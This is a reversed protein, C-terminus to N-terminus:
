ATRCGLRPGVRVGHQHDGDDARQGDARDACRCPGAPGRRGRRSGRLRRPRAEPVVVALRVLEAGSTTAAVSEAPSVVPLALAQVGEELPLLRGDEMRFARTAYPILELSHTVMLVTVGTQHITQLVGVIKLETQVDLDSTPEDAILIEPRNMLARAIAVRASSAERSSGPSSRQETEWVWSPWCRGAGARLGEPTPAGASFLSPVAM